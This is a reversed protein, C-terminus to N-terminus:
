NQTSILSCGQHASAVISAPQVMCNQPASEQILNTNCAIVSARHRTAILFYPALM